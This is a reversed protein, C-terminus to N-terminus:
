VCTRLREAAGGDHALVPRRTHRGTRSLPGRRKERRKICMRGVRGLERRGEEMVNVSQGVFLSVSAYVFALTPKFSIQALRYWVLLPAPPCHLSSHSGGDSLAGDAPPSM